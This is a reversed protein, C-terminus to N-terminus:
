SQMLVEVNGEKSLIGKLKLSEIDRRTIMERGLRFDFYLMSRKAGMGSKQVRKELMAEDTEAGAAKGLGLGGESM